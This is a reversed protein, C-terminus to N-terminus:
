SRVHGYVKSNGIGMGLQPIKMSFLIGLALLKGRRNYVSSIVGPKTEILLQGTLLAIHPVAAAWM